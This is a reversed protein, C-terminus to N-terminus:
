PTPRMVDHRSDFNAFQDRTPSGGVIWAAQEVEGPWPATVRCCIEQEPGRLIVYRGNLFEFTHHRFPPVSEEEEVVPLQIRLERQVITQAVFQWRNGVANV